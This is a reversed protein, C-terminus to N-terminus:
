KAYKNIEITHLKSNSHYNGIKMLTLMTTHWECKAIICCYEIWTCFLTQIDVPNHKHYVLASTNTHEFCLRIGKAVLCHQSQTM